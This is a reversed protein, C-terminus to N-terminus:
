QSVAFVESPENPSCAISLRPMTTFLERFFFLVCLSYACLLGHATHVRPSVLSTAFCMLRIV